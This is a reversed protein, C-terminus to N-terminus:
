RRLPDQDQTPGRARHTGPSSCSARTGTCRTCPTTRCTRSRTRRTSTRSCRTGACSYHTSSRSSRTRASSKHTGTGSGPVVVPVPAPGVTDKDTPVVPVPKPNPGTGSLDPVPLPQPGATDKDVVPVPEPGFGPLLVVTTATTRKDCFCTKLCMSRRTEITINANECFGNAAYRRCLRHSDQCDDMCLGCGRGCIKQRIELSRTTNTCFGNSMFRSCGVHDRGGCQAAAGAIFVTLALATLMTT